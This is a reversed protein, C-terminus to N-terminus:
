RPRRAGDDGAGAVAADRAPVSLEQGPYVRSPDKIRDRNAQYLAPWLAADGLTREAIKALTDGPAVVITAPEASAARALGLVAALLAAATARV